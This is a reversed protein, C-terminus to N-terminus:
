RVAALLPALTAGIRRMQAPTALSQLMAVFRPEQVGSGIYQWRYAKAMVARVAQKRTDACPPAGHLVGDIFYAADAAAQAQVMADLADQLALLDDVAQERQAADLGAHVRQWARQDNLARQSARRWQFLFAARWQESLEGDPEISSRYHAQALLDIAFQLARVAWPSSALAADALADPPLVFRYGGPLHAATWQDLTWLDLRRPQTRPGLHVGPPVLTAETMQAAFSEFLAQMNAYTRGQIQSLFCREAADACELEDLKSLGDPMFKVAFDPRQGAWPSGAPDPPPTSADRM